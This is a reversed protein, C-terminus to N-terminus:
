MLTASSSRSSLVRTEQRNFKLRRAEERSIQYSNTLVEEPMARIVSNRGALTSVMANDNTKFSVWEFGNEGAQIAIAFNQPLILLQDRRLQGNYVTQGSNDVVQVRADGSLVYIIGHANINWHPSLMANQYLTGREASLQLTQLIPLNQSDLITVRGGYPSYFDAHKPKEINQRFRMNCIAEEVGNAGMQQEQAYEEDEEDSSTPMIMRLEKEVNVIGGRQDNEGQLKRATETSVGFAQALTETDFGSFINASNEQRAKQDHQYSSKGGKQQQRQEQSSSQHGAKERRSFSEGQQQQQQEEQQHQSNGALYFQRKRDDLQNFSNAIDFISVAVLRANGNNYMWHAVGDPVAVIDGQKVSRIKQHQDQFRRSRDEEKEESQQSQQFSQFTEPCGPISLGLVGKGEVIYILRHANYYSPLSLGKPQITVRSAAVGACQFQNNNEDWEEVFGAEAERRRTPELADLNEVRCRNQERGMSRCQTPSQGQRQRQWTQALCVHCLVLLCLCVSFLSSKAM